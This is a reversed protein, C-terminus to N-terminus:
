TRRVSVVAGRSFAVGETLVSLKAHLLEDDPAAYDCHILTGLRAYSILGKRTFWGCPPPPKLTVNM